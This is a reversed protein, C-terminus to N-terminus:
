NLDSINKKASRKEKFKKSMETFNDLLNKLYIKNNKKICPTKKINEKYLM